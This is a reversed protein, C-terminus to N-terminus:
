GEEGIEDDDDAHIPVRHTFSEWTKHTHGIESEGYSWCWLVDTEHSPFDVTFAGKPLGGLELVRQAWDAYIMSLEEREAREVTVVDLDGARTRWRSEAENLRRIASETVPVLRPLADNAEVRSFVSAPANSPFRSGSDNRATM